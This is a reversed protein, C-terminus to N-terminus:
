LNDKNELTIKLRARFTGKLVLMKFSENPLLGVIDWLELEFDIQFGELKQAHFQSHSLVPMCM